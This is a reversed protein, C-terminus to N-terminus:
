NPGLLCIIFEFLKISEADSESKLFKQIILFIHLKYIERQLITFLPHFM